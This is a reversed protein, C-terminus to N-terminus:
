AIDGFREADIEAQLAAVVHARICRWLNTRTKITPLTSLWLLYRFDQAAVTAVSRGKYKGFEILINPTNTVNM